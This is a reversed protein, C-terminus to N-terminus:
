LRSNMSMRSMVIGGSTMNMKKLRCITAPMVLPATFPYHAREGLARGLREEAGVAALGVPPGCACPRRSPERSRRSISTRVPLVAPTASGSSAVRHM